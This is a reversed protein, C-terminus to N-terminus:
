DLITKTFRLNPSGALSNSFWPIRLIKLHWDTEARPREFGMVPPVASAAPKKTSFLVRDKRPCRTFCFATRSIMGVPFGLLGSPM